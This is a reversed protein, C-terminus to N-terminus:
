DASFFCASSNALLIPGQLNAALLWLNWISLVSSRDVLWPKPPTFECIVQSPMSMYKNKYINQTAPPKIVTSLKQISLQDLAPGANGWCSSDPGGKASVSDVGAVKGSCCSATAPWSDASWVQLDLSPFGCSDCVPTPKPDESIRGSM